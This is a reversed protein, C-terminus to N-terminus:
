DAARWLMMDGPGGTGFFPKDVSPNYLSIYTVGDIEVHGVYEVLVETRSGDSSEFWALYTHGGDDTEFVFADNEAVLPLENTQAALGTAAVGYAVLATSLARTYQM